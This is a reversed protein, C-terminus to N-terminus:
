DIKKSKISTNIQEVTLGLIEATEQISFGKALLRPVAELKGEAIMEQAFRTKRLDEIGLM